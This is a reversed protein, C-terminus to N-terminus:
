QLADTRYLTFETCMGPYKVQLQASMRSDANFRACFPGDRFYYGVARRSIYVGRPDRVLHIVRLEPDEALLKEVEWM